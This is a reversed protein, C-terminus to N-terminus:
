HYLRSNHWMSMRLDRDVTFLSLTYTYVRVESSAFFVEQSADWSLFWFIYFLILLELKNQLQPCLPLCVQFLMPPFVIFSHHRVENPFVSTLDEVEPFSLISCLLRIIAFDIGALRHYTFSRIIGSCSSSEPSNHRCLLNFIWRNLILNNYQNFVILILSMLEDCQPKPVPITDVTCKSPCKPSIVQRANDGNRTINCSFEVNNETNNIQAVLLSSMPRHYAQKKVASPHTVDWTFNVHDNFSCRLVVM